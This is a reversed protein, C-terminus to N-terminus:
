NKNSKVVDEPSVTLKFNKLRLGGNPLVKEVLYRENVSLGAAAQQRPDVNFDITPSVKVYDGVQFNPAKLKSALVQLKQPINM